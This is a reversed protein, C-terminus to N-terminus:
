RIIVLMNVKLMPGDLHQPFGSAATWARNVCMIGVPLAETFTRRPYPPIYAPPAPSLVNTAVFWNWLQVYYPDLVFADRRYNVIFLGELSRARSLVVYTHPAAFFAVMDVWVHDYSCGQTGHVACSYGALMPFQIMMVKVSPGYVPIIQHFRCIQYEKTGGIPSVVM